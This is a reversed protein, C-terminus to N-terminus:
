SQRPPIPTPRHEKAYNLLQELSNVINDYFELHKASGIPCLTFKTRDQTEKHVPNHCQGHECKLKVNMLLWSMSILSTIWMQYEVKNIDYLTYNVPSEPPLEPPNRQLCTKEEISELYETGQNIALDCFKGLFRVDVISGPPLSEVAEYVDRVQLDKKLM